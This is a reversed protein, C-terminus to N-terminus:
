KTSMQAQHGTLHKMGDDWNIRRSVRSLWNDSSGWMTSSCVSPWPSTLHSALVMFNASSPTPMPALPRNWAEVRLREVGTKLVVWPYRSEGKDDKIGVGITMLPTLPPYKLGQKSIFHSLRQAMLYSAWFVLAIWSTGETEGECFFPFRITERSFGWLHKHSDFSIWHLPVKFLIVVYPIWNAGM